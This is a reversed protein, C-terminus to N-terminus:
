PQAGLYKGVGAWTLGGARNVAALSAVAGRSWRLADRHGGLPREVLLQGTATTSECAGLGAILEAHEVTDLRGALRALLVREAM